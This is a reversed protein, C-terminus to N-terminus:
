AILFCLENGYKLGFGATNKNSGPFPLIIKGGVTTNKNRGSLKDLM